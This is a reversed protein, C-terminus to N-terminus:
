RRSGKGAVAGFQASTSGGITKPGGPSCAKQAAQFRASSPDLDSGPHMRIEIGGSTSPDPFDPIGHARMCTSLRLAQSRAQAQQAPTLNGGPMLKACSKQAAQFGPSQPDLDSGSHARISIGGQADPDPFDPVGHSRMCATFKLLESRSKGGQGGDATQMGFQMGATNGGTTPGGSSGPGQQGQAGGQSSQAAATPTSGVSAVGPSAQGAPRTILFAVLGAVVALVVTAAVIAGTRSVGSRTSRRTGLDFAAEPQEPYDSEPRSAFPGDGDPHDHYGDAKSTAAEHADPTQEATPDTPPQMNM